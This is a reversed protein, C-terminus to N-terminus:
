VLVVVVAAAAAVMDALCVEIRTLAELRTARATRALMLSKRPTEEQREARAPHMLRRKAEKLCEALSAGLSAVGQKVLVVNELM